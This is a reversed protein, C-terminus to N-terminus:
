GLRGNKELVVVYGPGGESIVEALCWGRGAILRELEEISVFLWDFWPTRYTKYRVRMRIQGGMRGRQRNREHYALHSPETTQYPDLGEAVIRGEPTTLSGMRALLRRSRTESGFLGFNNGMMIVTDFVGLKWSIQTISLVRADRVGRRRCVEIALPSRDIAVVEHGQNQLHLAFRGGGCGIDLVRGRVARLAARGLEGWESPRAFYRGACASVAIFGDDREIIEFADDAGDLQDMLARGFADEGEELGM